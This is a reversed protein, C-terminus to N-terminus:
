FGTRLVVGITRPQNVFFQQFAQGDFRGGEDYQMEVDNTLNNGYLYLSYGKKELGGKANLLGLSDLFNDQAIISGDPDDSELKNLREGTFSYTIRGVLDVNGWRTPKRGEAGIFFSEEAVQPLPTGKPAFTNPMGSVDLMLPVETTFEANQLAGSAFLLLHDNIAYNIEGEIGQIEACDVNVTTGVTLFQLETHVDSWHSHFVAANLRMRGDLLLAKLGAEYSWVSDPDYAVLEDFVPDGAGFGAFVLSVPNNFLGNRAGRAASAFLMIDHNVDFEVQAKPLIESVDFMLRDKGFTEPDGVSPRGFVELIPATAVPPNTPFEFTQEFYRAGGTIRLRDDLFAAQLEGFLALQDGSIDFRLTYFVDSPELGSMSVLQRHTGTTERVVGDTLTDSTSWLVGGVFNLPSNFNTIVRFEQSFQKTSNTNTSEANGDLGVAGLFAASDPDIFQRDYQRDYYGTVSQLTVAGVTASIKNAILLAKDDQHDPAPLTTSLDELNTVTQDNDNVQEQYFGSLRWSITDSVEYRFVGQVGEHRYSNADQEGGVVDIFGDRDEVFGTLRLAAKKPIVPLNISGDAIYVPGGDDIIGAELRTRVEYENLHPDHSFFRVSGGVSGEGFYTPQPGKLVEVREVDFLPVSGQKGTMDLIAVEDFFVTNSSAKQVIDGDDHLSTVGRIIPKNRGPGREFIDVGPTLRVIDVISSAQNKEIDNRSFLNITQGINDATEERFRATVVVDDLAGLDGFFEDAGDTLTSSGMLLPSVTGLLSTLLAM